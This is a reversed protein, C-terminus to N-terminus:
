DLLVRTRRVQGLYESRVLYIGAPREGLHLQVQGSRVNNKRAVERGTIDLVRVMGLPGTGRVLLLGSADTWAQIAGHAAEHEDIGVVGNGAFLEAGVGPDNAAYVFQGQFVVMNASAANPGSNQVTPTFHYVKGTGEATGDSMWYQTGEGALNGMFYIHAGDTRFGYPNHLGPASGGMGGFNTLITLTHAVPDIRALSVYDDDDQVFTYIMGGMEILYPMPQGSISNDLLMTNTVGDTSFLTPTGDVPGTFYMVGDDTVPHAIGPIRPTAYQSAHLQFTGAQTGDSSLMGEHGKVIFRQANKSWNLPIAGSDDSENIAAFQGTGAETGDSSWLQVGTNGDYALFYAKGNFDFGNFLPFPDGLGTATGPMIDKVLHTGGPTGDSYWIEYGSAADHGPFIVGGGPM